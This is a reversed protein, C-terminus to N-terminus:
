VSELVSGGPRPSTALLHGRTQLMLLGIITKGDVIEGSAIMGLADAFPVRCVEIREDMEPRPRGPALDTALFIHLMENTGGPTTYFSCLSKVHSALYGTEEELERVACVQPLEGAELIGAPLEWLERDIAYRYQRILLVRQANDLAVIVAGGHFEVVERITEGKGPIAVRDVRLNLIKGDYVCRSELTQEAEL